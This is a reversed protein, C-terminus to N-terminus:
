VSPGDGGSLSSDPVTAHQDAYFSSVDISLPLVARWLVPAPDPASLDSVILDAPIEPISFISSAEDHVPAALDVKVDFHQLPEAYATAAAALAAISFLSIFLKKM